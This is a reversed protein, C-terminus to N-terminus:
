MANRGMCVNMTHFVSSESRNLAHIVNVAPSSAGCASATTEPIIPFSPKRPRLRREARAESM